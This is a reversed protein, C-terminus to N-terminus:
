YQHRLDTFSTRGESPRIYSPASAAGVLHRTTERSTGRFGFTLVSAFLLISMIAHVIWHYAAYYYEPYKGQRKRTLQDEKAMPYEPWTEECLPVTDESQAV